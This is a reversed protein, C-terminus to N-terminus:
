AACQYLRTYGLEPFYKAGVYYHYQEHFQIFDPYNFRGLNWWCLFAAVGLLAILLDRLSRHGDNNDGAKRHAIWDWGFTLTGLAAVTFQVAAVPRYGLSSWIAIVNM